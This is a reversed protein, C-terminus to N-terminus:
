ECGANGATGQHALRESSRTGWAQGFSPPDLVQLVVDQIQPNVDARVVDGDGRPCSGRGPARTVRGEGEVSEESACVAGVCVERCGLADGDERGEGGRVAPSKGTVLHAAPKRVGRSAGRRPPPSLPPTEQVGETRWRRDEVKKGGGGTRRRREEVKQGEGGIRWRRDAPTLLSRHPPTNELFGCHGAAGSLNRTWTITLTAGDPCQTDM